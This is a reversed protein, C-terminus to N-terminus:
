DIASQRGLFASLPGPLEAPREGWDYVVATGAVLDHLARHHRGFVIGTLGLGFLLGSFPMALTRLLAKRAPLTSGDAAVVRLGVMGKGPTRGAITLSAFVYLFSWLAYTVIWVLGSRSGSPSIGIVVRGLLDVGAVAATFLAVLIGLDSLAAAARSVPGAYHGTVGLRRSSAAAHRVLVPPGPEGPDRKLLRSVLRAAIADLGVLQRRALDLTSGAVRGTSEAVIEPLGGRRVLAEVDVRKLLAEMDVRGVLRDPDVRDLLRDPDVRDLLRDVDVRDLLRDLDVRDLLRNVDVRDLVANVDVRELLRNVDVRGVVHEVDIRDVVQDPDITDLVRGTVAGALRSM